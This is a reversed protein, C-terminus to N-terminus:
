LFSSSIKITIKERAMEESEPDSNKNLIKEARRDFLGLFIACLLSIICIGFGALFQMNSQNREIGKM